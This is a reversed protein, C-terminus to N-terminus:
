PNRDTTDADRKITREAPWDRPAWWVLPCPPVELLWDRIRQWLPAFIAHQLPTDTRPRARESNIRLSSM